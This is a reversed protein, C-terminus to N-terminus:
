IVERYEHPACGVTKKFVSSFHSVSRFGVAGAIEAISHEGAVLLQKAREIRTALLQKAPSNGTMRKYVRQLHYPSINFASAITALTVNEAYRAAIWATVDHAIKADPGHRDPNDPRCRKCARFGAQVATEISTYVRVNEPRPTRSRCSPRCYIGTTVIGVYYIGDHRTDRDLITAYVAQFVDPAVNM